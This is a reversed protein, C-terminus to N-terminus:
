DHILAVVKKFKIHSILKRYKGIISNSKIRMGDFTTANWAGQGMDVLTTYKFAIGGTAIFFGRICAQNRRQLLEQENIKHNKFIWNSVDAWSKAKDVVGLLDYGCDAIVLSPKLAFASELGITSGFTISAVSNDLLEYSSVPEEPGIVRSSESGKITLWGLKQSDSKNRLNPHLRVILEYRNQIDFIKQLKRVCEIQEGLPENWEDWFGVAEDDSSSFYVFYPKGIKLDVKTDTFFPRSKSRLESFYRSGLEIRKKLNLDSNEWHELMVKQNNTRSHFGEERLFYRNRTTEFLVVKVGQNRAADWVAREHLFRGNYLFIREVSNVIIFNTVANYVQLYSEVLIRVLLKNKNLDLDRNKTLTTIENALAAGPKVGLVDINKLMSINSAISIVNSLNITMASVWNHDFEIKSTFNVNVAAHKVLKEIVRPHKRTLSEFGDSMRGPYKTESGWLCYFVEDGALSVDKLIELSTAFHISGSAFQFFATKL